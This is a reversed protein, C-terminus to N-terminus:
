KLVESSNTLRIFLRQLDMKTIELDASISKSDVAGELYATKLGGLIDAGLLKKDAIYRDVTTISGSVCYYRSLLEERPEARLIQGNHIVIVDEIVGSVEEILHTSIVFASSNELYAELLVRYFLERHNADLGLVPEDLFVYPVNVCLAVILKFISCYGTSLSKIKKKVDLGFKASLELAKKEDFSIYFEKTWRFAEAVKMAEPYYNKESMVFINKLAKDNEMVPKDELLVQGQDAFIRGSIINLLTTKGAGNRGLLGYIKNPQLEISVNKLAQVDGYNKSINKIFLGKM